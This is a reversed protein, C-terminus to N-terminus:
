PTAPRRRSARRADGGDPRLQAHLLDGERSSRTGPAGPDGCALRGDSGDDVFVFEYDHEPMGEFVRQIGEHTKSIAGENHYVPVVISIKM